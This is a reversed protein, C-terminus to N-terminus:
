INIFQRYRFIVDDYRDEITHLGAKKVMDEVPNNDNTKMNKFHVWNAGAQLYLKYQLQLHQKDKLDQIAYLISSFSFLLFPSFNNNLILLPFGFPSM